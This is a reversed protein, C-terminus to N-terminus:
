RADARLLEDRRALFRAASFGFAFWRGNVERVTATERVAQATARRVADQCLANFM